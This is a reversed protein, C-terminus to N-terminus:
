AGRCLAIQAVLRELAETESAWYNYDRYQPFLRPFSPDEWRRAIWAAYHVIRLGRLAPILELDSEHFHRFERYGKLLASLDEQGDESGESASLLMWFDQAPPGMCFDDFDIFFFESADGDARDTKLINGRHCDGHIRIFKRPDLREELYIFIEEAAAFYRSAVEPAVWDSLVDLNQWGYNEVTMVPRFNATREEGINHMRGLTRGLKELDAHSLEDVMRGLAKPWLAFWLNNELDLTSKNKLQLPAAAPLGGSKLDNLFEHEELITAKSWRGPRYFKIIVREKNELRVDFVRNEYSNLQTFEGTPSYGGREVASMVTDPTLSYFDEKSM